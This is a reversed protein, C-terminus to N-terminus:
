GRNSDTRQVVPEAGVALSGPQQERARGERQM